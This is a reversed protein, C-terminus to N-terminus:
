FLRSKRYSVPCDGAFAMPPQAHSDARSIISGPRSTELFNGLLVNKSIAFAIRTKTEGPRESLAGCCDSSV